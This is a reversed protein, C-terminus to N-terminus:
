KRAQEWRAPEERGPDRPNGTFAIGPKSLDPGKSPSPAITKLKGTHTPPPPKHVVTELRVPTHDHNWLPGKLTQTM